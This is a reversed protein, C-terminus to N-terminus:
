IFDMCIFDNASYNQYISCDTLQPSSFCLDDDCDHNLAITILKKAATGHTYCSLEKGCTEFFSLYKHPLYIVARFPPTNDIRNESPASRSINSPIYKGNSDFNHKLALLLLFYAAKSHSINKRVSLDIIDKALGGKFTVDFRTTTNKVYNYYEQKNM